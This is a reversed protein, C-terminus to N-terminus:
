STKFDGIQLGFLVVDPKKVTLVSGNEPVAWCGIIEKEPHNTRM